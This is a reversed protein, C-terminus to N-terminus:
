QPLAPAYQIGAQAPMVAIPPPDTEGGEHDEQM